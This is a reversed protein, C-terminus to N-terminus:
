TLFAKWLPLQRDYANAEATARGARRVADRAQHDLSLATVSADVLADVDGVPTLWGNSGPIILDTAQGVRTSVLPIGSSLSELVAKPGGEERSTVLVLDCAQYFKTLSAYDDSWRHVHPIGAATLGRRVFGRAAGSLVVHLGDVQDRLRELVALLVDPGKLLKPENGDGWGVGDKQFSGVVVADAPLGLGARAERRGADAVLPFLELNIGIPIRHVKAPDIGSALVLQEMERHSVLIRWLSPHLERLAEYCEVFEPYRHDPRGHFYAVAVQNGALGCHGRLSPLVFQSMHFLRQNRIGTSAGGPLLTSALGLRRALRHIALAEENLVWGSGDGLVYLQSHPRALRSRIAARLLALRGAVRFGFNTVHPARSM